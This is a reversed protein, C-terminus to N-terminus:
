NGDDRGGDKPPLAEEKPPVPITSPDQEEFEPIPWYDNYARIETEGKWVGGPKLRVPVAKKASVLCVSHRAIEPFAGAAHLLQVDTFGKTHHIDFYHRTGPCFLIQGEGDCDVFVKDVDRGSDPDFFVFDDQQIVLKPRMADESYDLVYKGALGLIKVTKRNERIDETVFHTMMGTTFEMSENGKNFIELSCRLISPHGKEPMPPMPLILEEDRLIQDDLQAMDRPHLQVPDPQELSITYIAEFDYPWAEAVEADKSETHLSISPRPDEMGYFADSAIVSWHMHRMFGNFSFEGAGLQPWAIALGGGIPDIGDWKNSPNLYLIESEDERKWSTVVAGHLCIQAAAGSPHQLTVFPLGGPGESFDVLGKIGFSSRCHEIYNSM